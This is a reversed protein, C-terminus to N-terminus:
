AKLGQTSIMHQFFDQFDDDLITDLLVQFDDDKTPSFGKPPEHNKSLYM